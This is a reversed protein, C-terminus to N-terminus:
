KNIIEANQLIEASCDMIRDFNDKGVYKKINAFPKYDKSDAGHLDSGFACVAGSEIYRMLKKRFLLSALSDANIQAKAGMKLLADIEAERSRIYRDIHALVVDYGNNIMNEVTDMITASWQVATPMELLICKTGRVCLKEIGDMKDIMECVLVEAGVCINTERYNEKLEAVQALAADVSAIFDNVSHVNPYFHSTAVVTSVGSTSIIDLQQRTQDLSKSGHDVRPM